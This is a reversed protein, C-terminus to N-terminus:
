QCIVSADQITKYTNNHKIQLAVKYVGAQSFHAENFSSTMQFGAKAQELTDFVFSDEITTLVTEGKPDILQFRYEVSLDKLNTIMAFASFNYTEGKTVVGFPATIVTYGDADETVSDCLVINATPKYLNATWTAADWEVIVNLLKAADAVPISTKGFFNVAPVQTAAPASNLTLNVIEFGKFTGNISAAFAFTSLLVIVVLVLSLKKKMIAEQFKITVLFNYCVILM